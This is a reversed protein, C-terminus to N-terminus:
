VDAGEETHANPAYAHMHPMHTNRYKRFTFDSWVQDSSNAPSQQQLHKAVSAKSRPIHSHTDKHTQTYPQTHRKPTPLNSGRNKARLNSRPGSTHFSAQTYSHWKCALTTPTNIFYFDVQQSDQYSGKMVWDGSRDVINSPPCWSLMILAVKDVHVYCSELHNIKRLPCQPLNAFLIM